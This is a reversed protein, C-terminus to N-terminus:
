GQRQRGSQDITYPDPLLLETVPVLVYGGQQLGKLIEPLAKSTNENGCHLLIISGKGTNDLVRNKLQEPTKNQWDLSDVDWGIVEMGAGRVSSVATDDYEGYPFRYLTPMEGTINHIEANCLRMDELLADRGLTTVHGHTNSNNMIEHGAEYLARAHEPYRRIWDGTVFFTARVKYRALTEIIEYTYESGGSADFTLSATKYPREASNIPIERKQALTQIFQPSAMSLLVTAAIALTLIVATTRLRIFM